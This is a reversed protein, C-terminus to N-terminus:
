HWKKLNWNWDQKSGWNFNLQFQIAIKLKVIFPACGRHGYPVSKIIKKKKIEGWLIKERATISAMWWKSWILRTLTCSHLCVCVCVCVRLVYLWSFPSDWVPVTHRWCKHGKVCCNLVNLHHCFFLISIEMEADFLSFGETDSCIVLSVLSHNSFLLATM